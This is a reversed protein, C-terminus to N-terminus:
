RYLIRRKKRTAEFYSIDTPSTTHTHDLSVWMHFSLSSSTPFHHMDPISIYQFLSSLPFVSM